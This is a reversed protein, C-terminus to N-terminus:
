KNTIEKIKDLLEDKNDTTYYGEVKGVFKGDKFFLLSPLETLDFRRMLDENLVEIKRYRTDKSFTDAIEKVNISKLLCM